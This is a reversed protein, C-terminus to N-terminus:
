DCYYKDPSVCASLHQIDQVLCPRYNAVDELEVVFRTVDVDVVLVDQRHDLDVVDACTSHQSYLLHLSSNSDYSKNFVLTEVRRRSLSNVGTQLYRKNSAVLDSISPWVFSGKIHILILLRQLM